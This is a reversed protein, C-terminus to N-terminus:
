KPVVPRFRRLLRHFADRLRDASSESSQALTKGAGVLIFGAPRERGVARPDSPDLSQFYFQWTESVGFEEQPSWSYRTLEVLDSAEAMTTVFLVDPAADQIARRFRRMADAPIPNGGEPRILLVRTEQGTAEGVTFLLASVVATLCAPLLRAHLRM